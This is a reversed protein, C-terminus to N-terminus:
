NIKTFRGAKIEYTYSSTKHCKQCMSSTVGGIQNFSNKFEPSRPVNKEVTVSNGCFKCSVSQSLSEYSLDVQKNEPKSSPKNASSTPKSVNSNSTSTNNTNKSIKPENIPPFTSNYGLLLQNGINMVRIAYKPDYACKKMVIDQWKRMDNELDNMERFTVFQNKKIKKLATIHARASYEYANVIDACDSNQNINNNTSVSNSSQSNTVEEPYFSKFYKYIQPFKTRLGELSRDEIQPISADIREVKVIEYKGNVKIVPPFDDGTSVSGLDYMQDALKAKKPPLVLKGDNSFVSIQGLADTFVIANYGRYLYSNKVASYKCPIILSGNVDIAGWYNNLKVYAIGNIFDGSETSYLPPTIEKGNKNVYGRKEGIDYSSIDCNAYYKNNCPEFGGIKDYLPQITFEGDLNVYGHKNNFVVECTGSNRFNKLEDFKPATLLIWNADAIAWKDKIQIANMNEGLGKIANYKTDRTIRTGKEFVDEKNLSNESNNNSNQKDKKFRIARTNLYWDASGYITGGNFLCQAWRELGATQNIGWYYQTSSINFNGIKEKNQYLFNLEYATPLRWGNGLNLCAKKAEDWTMRQSFDTQAIEYEGIEITKGIVNIPPLSTQASSLGSIINILCFLVLFKSLSKM